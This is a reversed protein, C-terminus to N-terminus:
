RSCAARKGEQSSQADLRFVARAMMTASIGAYQACHLSTASRPTFPSESCRSYASRIEACAPAM